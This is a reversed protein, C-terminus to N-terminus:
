HNGAPEPMHFERFRRPGYLQGLLLDYENVVQAASIREWPPAAAENAVAAAFNRQRKEAPHLLQSFLGAADALDQEGGGFGLLMVGHHEPQILVTDLSIAGHRTGLSELAAVLGLVRRAMWAWDRGNLGRPYAAQVERLTRMGAPLQYAHWNHGQAAGLDVPEAAFKGLIKQLRLARNFRETGVPLPEPQRGLEVVVDARDTAFVVRQPTRWLEAGLLYTGRQGVVHPQAAGPNHAARSGAGTAAGQCWQEWLEHLRATAATARAIDLGHQATLDPHVAQVLRRYIRRKRARGAGDAAYAGFLDTAQATMIKTAQDM